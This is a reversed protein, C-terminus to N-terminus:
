IMRPDRPQPVIQRWDRYDGLHSKRYLHRGIGGALVFIQFWFPMAILLYYALSSIPEVLLKVIHSTFAVLQASALVLPYFRNAEVAIYLFAVLGMSDLFFGVSDISYFSSKIGILDRLFAHVVIMTMLVSACAREPGRGKWIALAFLLVVLLKQIWVRNELFLQLM